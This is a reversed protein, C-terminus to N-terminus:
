ILPGVSYAKRFNMFEVDVCNKYAISINYQPMSVCSKWFLFDPNRLPPILPTLDQGPAPGHVDSSAM